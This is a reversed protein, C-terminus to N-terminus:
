KMKPVCFILAYLADCVVHFLTGIFLPFYVFYFIVLALPNHFPMLFWMKLGKASHTKGLERCHRWVRVPNLTRLKIGFIIVHDADILISVVLAFVAEFPTLVGLFHLLLFFAIGFLLHWHPLM